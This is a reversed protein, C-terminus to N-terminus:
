QIQITIAKAKPSIFRRRRREWSSRGRERGEVRGDQGGLSFDHARGQHYVHTHVIHYRVRPHHLQTGVDRRHVHAIVHLRVAATSRTETVEDDDAATPPDVHRGVYQCQVGVLRGAEADVVEIGLEM